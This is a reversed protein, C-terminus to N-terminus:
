FVVKVEKKAYSEETPTGVVTVLESPVESETGNDCAWGKDVKAYFSGGSLTIGGDGKIAKPKGDDNSGSTIASLTGGSFV